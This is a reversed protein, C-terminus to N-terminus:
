NARNRLQLMEQQKAALAKFAAVYVRWAADDKPEVAPDCYDLAAACADRTCQDKDCCAAALAIGSTPRMNPDVAACCAARTSGRGEPTAALAQLRASPSKPSRETIGELAVLFLPDANWIEAITGNRWICLATDRDHLAVLTVRDGAVEAIAPGLLRLQVADRSAAFELVPAGITASPALASGASELRRWSREGAAREFQVRHTSDSADGPATRLVLELTTETSVAVSVPHEVAYASAAAALASLAVSILLPGIRRPLM